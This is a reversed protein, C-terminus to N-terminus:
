ELEYRYGVGHITKILRPQNVDREIQKRLRSIHQDLTRSNPMYEYGWCQNFLEDRSVAQGKNKELLKLIKIERLSLDITENDARARLETPYVIWHGFQFSVSTQVPQTHLYRRTIARIRAIVERTGFPKNIYDDAGLELGIVHDIEESKASLFIIPITEDKKRIERCVSYGDLLPMMIDLIIFQPKKLHFAELAKEGNETAIVEYGEQNLLDYLGERIYTDDEAILIKM